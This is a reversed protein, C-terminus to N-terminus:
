QPFTLLVKGADLLSSFFDNQSAAQLTIRHM